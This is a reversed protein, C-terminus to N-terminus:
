RSGSVGFAGNFNRYLEQLDRAIVPPIIHHNLMFGIRRSFRDYFEHSKANIYGLRIPNPFRSEGKAYKLFDIHSLVAYNGDKQKELFRRQSCSPWKGPELADIASAFITRLIDEESIDLKDKVGSGNILTPLDHLRHEKPAHSLYLSSILQGLAEDEGGERIRPVCKDMTDVADALLFGFGAEIGYMLSIYIFAADDSVGHGKDLEIYAPVFPHMYKVGEQREKKSRKRFDVVIGEAKLEDLSLPSGSTALSSLDQLNMKHKELADMDVATCIGKHIRYKAPDGNYGQFKKETASRWEASDIFAGIYMGRLVSRPDNITTHSFMEIGMLPNGKRDLLRTPAYEREHKTIVAHVWGKVEDIMAQREELIQELVIEKSGRRGEQRLPHPSKELVAQYVDKITTNMFKFSHGSVGFEGDGNIAHGQVSQALLLQKHRIPSALVVRKLMSMYDKAAIQKFLPAPSPYLHAVRTM